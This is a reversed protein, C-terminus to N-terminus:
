RTKRRGVSRSCQNASKVGKMKKARHGFKKKRDREMCCDVTMVIRFVRLKREGIIQGRSCNDLEDNRKARSTGM